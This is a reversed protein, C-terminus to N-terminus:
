INSIRVIRYVIISHNWKLIIHFVWILLIEISNQYFLIDYKFWSRSYCLYGNMESDFPNSEIQPEHLRLSGDCNM